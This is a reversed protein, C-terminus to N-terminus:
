DQGVADSVVVSNLLTNKLGQPTNRAIASIDPHPSSSKSLSKQLEELKSFEMAIRANGAYRRGSKAICGALYLNNNAMCDESANERTLEMYEKTSLLFPKGNLPSHEKNIAGSTIDYAFWQDRSYALMKYDSKRKGQLFNDIANVYQHIFRDCNDSMTFNIITKNSADEYYGDSKDKAVLELKSYAEKSDEVANQAFAEIAELTRAYGKLEAVDKIAKRSIKAAALMGEARMQMFTLSAQARIKFATDNTIRDEFVKAAGSLVKGSTTKKVTSIGLSTDGGMPMGLLAGAGYGASIAIVVTMIVNGTKM